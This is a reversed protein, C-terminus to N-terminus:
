PYMVGVEAEKHMVKEKHRRAEKKRIFAATINSKPGV